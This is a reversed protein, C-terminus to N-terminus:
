KSQRLDFVRSLALVSLSNRMKGQEITKNLEDFSLEDTSIDEGEDLKISQTKVVDLALLSHCV